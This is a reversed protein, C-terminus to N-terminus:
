PVISQVLAADPFCTARRGQSEQWRGISRRTKFGALGDAGGVDHGLAILAVQMAAVDSRLMEDVPGWKGAFDGSGYAIRDGVHGVFLAYLDSPNYRKIVYFNPTVLFAPGNRGAPLMLSAQGNLAEDPFARGNPRTIGLATWEAIRKRQDPGELTCSLDVPVVVEYGWDRGREWDHFNLFSAISALTDAQSGWIDRRGDRDGDAAYALFSSPMFQPQGLAGAWSSRIDSIPVHGEQAIQLLAIVEGTFYDANKGMFGRTALVPFPNDRIPVGGFGSERGWIALLIHRPVGFRGEIATLTDALREGKTRGIRASAVINDAKFYRAPARFESQKTTTSPQEFGEPLILSPTDWELTVQGLAADFTAREVGRAAASPWVEQELWDQFKAEVAARDQAIAPLSFALLILIRLIM